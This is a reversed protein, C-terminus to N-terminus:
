WRFLDGVELRFGPLVDDGDLGDGEGLVQGAGPDDLATRSRHVAVTRTRPQVVWVIRTGAELYELVKEQIEAASNSPSVVEVALDPALRWFGKSFGEPPIRDRAVFSVDPGRVTPPDVSLIYGAETLVVGLRRREVFEHLAYAIRTELWAHETGPRPERVLRGRVLEDRYGDDQPLREYAEISLAPPAADVPHRADM